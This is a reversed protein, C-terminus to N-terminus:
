GYYESVGDLLGGHLPARRIAAFYARDHTLSDLPPISVDLRPKTKREDWPKDPQLRLQRRREARVRRDYAEPDTQAEELTALVQRWTMDADEIGPYVLVIRRGRHPGVRIADANEAQAQAMLESTGYFPEGNVAVFLVDRETAEILNRYPDRTRDSTVLVDGHVGAVLRGLRDEWGLAQAPNVTVMRCLAEDSFHRGLGDRNWLDAVKLEGLVNKSGSPSWDAGLCIRMGAQDAEAVKTTDRYLWLNSFPSWVVSGGHPAWQEYQPEALATCHIAALGPALCKRRRLDEYEEILDPSTGESLHYLYAEGARLHRRADAFQESSELTRVSQFVSREGTGFTEAEINRVLWGEWPRGTRASGQIATTGGVIAKTEVYKLVAKGALYNLANVPLNISPKYDPDRPWQTRKEYPETRGPPSWLPLTNYAVHNHLDFLGPYLAGGTDVRPADDFGAPPRDRARTVAEIRGRSQPDNPAIYVAGREIVPQEPDFTVVKGTLVLPRIAREAM